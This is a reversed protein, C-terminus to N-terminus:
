ENYGEKSSHLEQIFEEYLTKCTTYVDSIHESEEYNRCVYALRDAGIQLSASKLKHVLKKLESINKNEETRAIMELVEPMKSTYSKFTSLELGPKIEKLEELTEFNVIPIDTPMLPKIYKEAEKLGYLIDLKKVPKTYLHHFGLSMIHDEIKPSVDATLMYIKQESKFFSSNQYQFLFEEGNIIPMKRDVLLVHYDNKNSLLALADQGDNAFDCIFHYKDAMAEIVLQNSQNDEICLVKLEHNIQIDIASDTIPVESKCFRINDYYM